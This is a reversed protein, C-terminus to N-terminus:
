LKSESVLSIHVSDNHSFHYLITCFCQSVFWFDSPHSPIIDALHLLIGSSKDGKRCRRASVCCGQGGGRVVLLFGAQVGFEIRM